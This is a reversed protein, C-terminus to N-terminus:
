FHHYFPVQFLLIFIINFLLLLLLLLLIRTRCFPCENKLELWKELCYSHFTHHCPTVMYKKNNNNRKLNQLYKIISNGIKEFENLNNDDDNDFINNEINVSLKDLCIACENNVNDVFDRYYDYEIEKFIKPIFFKPGLIKQLFLIIM